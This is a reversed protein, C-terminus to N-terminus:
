NTSSNIKRIIKESRINALSMRNRVPNNSQQLWDYAAGVVAANEEAPKSINLDLFVSGTDVFRLVDIENEKLHHEFYLEYVMMNLLGEFVGAISRNDAFTNVPPMGNDLLFTLYDALIEFSRVDRVEPIPLKEIKYKKWRNTGMGSTTSITNFYWSAVSSNLIALLFKLNRGTMLFLTAEAYYQGSEYVFKPKDSLEGWLIKEKEFDELYACNRLNTWHFGKDSRAILKEKFRELYKFITPFDNPVDIPKIGKERVGNHSNILWQDDFQLSYKDLDRGRLIPKIIEQNKSDQSVLWERVQGPIIFAKNFGTKIGFNIQLDFNKLPIAIDEIHKKIEFDEKSLIIWGDPDLDTLVISNARFYDDISTDARFDERIAVALLPKEVFRTKAALFINTEVTATQFIKTDEFNLLKRPSSNEAFYNRLAEGYQTKMWSNSTIYCLTGGPKLLEIGLEYFLCYIDGTRTFTKFGAKEYQDAEDQMKQLQIYPPNGIFIDFGRGENREFVEQFYLHWLFYPKNDPQIKLLRKKGNETRLLENELERLRKGVRSNLISDRHGASVARQKRDIEARCEDIEAQILHEKERISQTIVLRELRDLQKRIHSKQQPDDVEFFDSELKTIDFSGLEQQVRLVDMLNNQPDMVEGFLNREVDYDSALKSRDFVLSIDEFQELLSNGQMIKYDLNPLPSPEIEDVVLSLWFRLRAIEVAGNDTDVGYINKQIIEKKIGAPDFVSNTKLYPYLLRRCEFIERLLGMLFAGSGIAPDCVKVDRLLRDIDKSLAYSTFASPVQNDRVLLEVDQTDAKTLHTTLYEILSEQCMYHVIEKPTYFAGKERNEELLNEFIHGLMEPDIGVERDYPDDEEITFNYQEFFEFLDEFLNPPFDIPNNTSIDTDFLGGNLYPIRISEGLSADAIDNERKRNLTEFFLMRLTWSHFRLKDSTRGFLNKLFRADGNKWAKEAAPAGMWEKKQLFQLFVLRGLLIKVFDRIPKAVPDKWGNKLPQKSNLFLERYKAPEALQECFLGFLEKYRKFFDKTLKEVSFKDILTDLSYQESQLSLLRDRATRVTEDKGLLYTFRKPETKQETLQDNEDLIRIESILSLRWKEGQVFVVLAADVDHKYINRLLLRLGVRNQWIRPKDTLDVQYLGVLRDDATEFSGLEFAARALDNPPLTIPKPRQLLERAGFIDTLVDHWFASQYGTSLISRLADKDIM